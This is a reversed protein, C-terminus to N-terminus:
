ERIKDAIAKSTKAISRIGKKPIQKAHHYTRKVTHKVKSKIKYKIVQVTEWGVLFVGLFLMLWSVAYVSLGTLLWFPQYLKRVYGIFFVGILGKGYFGLIISLIILIMGIIFKMDKWFKIQGKNM